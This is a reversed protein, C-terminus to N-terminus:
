LRAALPHVPAAAAGVCTAGVDEAKGLPAALAVSVTMDAAVMEGLGDPDGLFLPVQESPVPSLASYGEWEEKNRKVKARLDIRDPVMGAWIIEYPDLYNLDEPDELTGAKVFRKGLEMYARRILSHSIFECWYDHDESFYQAAQAGVLADRFMEKDGAPIKALMEKEIEEGERRIRERQQDPLHVGGAGHLRKIEAIALSPKEIWTPTCVELMRTMRWGNVGLFDNLAKLWQRGAESQEMAPIVDEDSLTLNQELKLEVAKSGLTVLGKNLQFLTNDFGGLVTAFRPDDPGIGTFEPSLESFIGLATSLPYFLDFHIEWVRRFFDGTLEYFHSTIEQDSMREVDLPIFRDYHQKLEARQREWYSWPNKYLDAAKKRFVAERAKIENEDRVIATSIYGYGQDIRWEWGRSRPMQWLEAGYHETYPITRYWLYFYLPRWAPVCHVADLLFCPFKRLDEEGRFDWIDCGYPM